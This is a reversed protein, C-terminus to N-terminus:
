FLSMQGRPRGARVVCETAAGFRDAAYALLEPTTDDDPEHIFFYAEELGKEILDRINDVGNNSAADIETLDVLNGDEAAKIIQEKLVPDTIYQTLLSLALLRAVSTKGTGRIGAFLYAHAFKDQIQAQKLTEVIHNQGSVDAFTKPRYKRYLSM